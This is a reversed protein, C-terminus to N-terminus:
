AVHGVKVQQDDSVLMEGSPLIGEFITEGYQGNVYVGDKTNFIFILNEDGLDLSINVELLLAKDAVSIQRAVPKDLTAISIKEVKM